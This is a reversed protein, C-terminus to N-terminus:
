SPHHEISPKRWCSDAASLIRETNSRDCFRDDVIVNSSECDFDFGPRVEGPKQAMLRGGPSTWFRAERFNARRQGAELISFGPDPDRTGGPQGNQGTEVSVVSVTKLPFATFLPFHGFGVVERM